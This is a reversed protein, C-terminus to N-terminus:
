TAGETLPPLHPTPAGVAFGQALSLGFSRVLALIERSEVSEAITRIGAERALTVISAVIARDLSDPDPLSRIFDGEVKLFDVSFRKLYTMSSFGSGFDDIAFRSGDSKLERIFIELLSANRVTERETIEFVLQRPDIGTQRILRRLSPLFDGTVVAKPSINLFLLGGFRADVAMRFAKEMVIMDLRSILGSEEAIEIFDAAPLPKGDIQLRMLVECAALSGDAASVIPQFYPLVARDAIAQQLLVYKESAMRFVEVVDEDTPLCYTNKGQAKARYMMNDAVLFLDRAETAHSPWTAIGASLSTKALSGEPSDLAFARLRDLIRRALSAAQEPGAEPLIVAFEDGGYRAVIDEARATDSLLTSFAQLFSDGFSHGFTDNIKKFDDLDLILLSFPTRAHREARGIEYNLLEWFVRQNFLGTLPDRVAYYEIDKTYKYIAKVSGVVNLVSTIISEVVLIKVPHQATAYHLGVGVIGGVRPSELLLSKTSLTLSELTIPSLCQSPDAVNHTISLNETPSFGDLTGLQELALREFLLKSEEPPEAKWFVEIEYSGDGTVFISFLFFVEVITNIDGLMNKVHEKWDHIVESTIIFRELLRIEFSLVSVDTTTRELAAIARLSDLLSTSLFSFHTQRVKHQCALLADLAAIAANALRRLTQPDSEGAMRRSTESLIQRAGSIMSSERLSQELVTGVRASIDRRLLEFSDDPRRNM